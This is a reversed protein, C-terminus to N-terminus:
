VPVQQAFHFGRVGRPVGSASWRLWMVLTTPLARASIARHPCASAPTRPVTFTVTFTAGFPVTALASTLSAILAGTPAHTAFSARVQVNGAVRAPPVNV